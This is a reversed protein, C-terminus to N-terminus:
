AGFVSVRNGGARKSAYMAGDALRFLEAASVDSSAPTYVAVGVSATIPFAPDIGDMPLRIEAAIRQAVVMANVSTTEACIVVFEDGGFRGVVDEARVVSRLRDAVVRLVADGTTHGLHDNVGKFGDLDLFVLAMPTGSELAVALREELLKRTALGTLRDYLALQELQARLRMRTLTQAAQRALAQQLSSFQDGLDRERGFFCLLVGIPVDRDVLPTVTVTHQRAAALAARIAATSADVGDVGISTVPSLELVSAMPVLEQLSLADGLPNVGAVVSLEGDDGLLVVASNSASFTSRASSVLAEALEEEGTAGGFAISADQLARVRVESAEASRRAALMEREYDQRVTSDFIATRIVRPQGNGDAVVVANLLVPLSSGDACSLAIAVERIEGQLRLIPQFRTEFFMQSGVTLLRTFSAGVVDRRERGTMGLLTDNIHTVTGNPAMTLLGCPANLYFEEYSDQMGPVVAADPVAAPADDAVTM